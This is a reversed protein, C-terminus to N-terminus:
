HTARQAVEHCVAARVLVSRHVPSLRAPAAALLDGMRSAAGTGVRRLQRHRDGYLCHVALPADASDMQELNMGAERALRRAERGHDELRLARRRSAGKQDPKFGTHVLSLRTGSVTPTLTFTVVTDIEMDGVVWTYSLKRQAEIELLRCNVTGDWGPLPETQVRVGGGARAQSRRGPPAVGRATCPRHARAVSEAAFSAFRIRLFRIRNALARDHRRPTM